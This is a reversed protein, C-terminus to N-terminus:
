KCFGALLQNEASCQDANGGNVITLCGQETQKDLCKGCTGRLVSCAPACEGASCIEGNMCDHDSSCSNSKCAPLLAALAVLFLSVVIALKRM